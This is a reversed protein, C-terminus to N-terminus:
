SIVLDIWTVVEGTHGDVFYQRAGLQTQSRVTLAWCLLDSEGTRLIVLEPTSTDHDVYGDSIFDALAASTAQAATIQHHIDAEVGVIIGDSFGTPKLDADLHVIGEGSQVRLGYYTQDMRVHTGGYRDKNVSYVKMADVGFRLQLDSMHDAVYQLAASEAPDATTSTPNSDDKSCSAVLAILGAALLLVFARRM